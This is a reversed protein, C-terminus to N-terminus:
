GHNGGRLVDGAELVQGIEIPQRGMARFAHGGVDLLATTEAFIRITGGDPMADRANIALNVLASTLQSRDVLAPSEARAAAAKALPEIM